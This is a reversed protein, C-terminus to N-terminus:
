KVEEYVLNLEKVSPYKAYRMANSCTGKALCEYEISDIKQKYILFGKNKCISCEEQNEIDKNKIIPTTNQLLIIDALKPMFKLTKYAERSIQRYREKTLNKIESFWIKKQEITLEKEYFKEIEDTVEIFETNTM